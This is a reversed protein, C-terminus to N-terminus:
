GNKVKELYERMRPAFDEYEQITRYALDYLRDKDVCYELQGEELIQKRIYIPLQQFIQLDVMQPDIESLYDLRKRSPSVTREPRENRNERRDLILCIDLDSGSTEEQTKRVQSGYLMVALIDEDSKARSLIKELKHKQSKTLM